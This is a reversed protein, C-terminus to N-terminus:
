KVGLRKYSPRTYMPRTYVPKAYAPKAYSYTPVLIAQQLDMPRMIGKFRLLLEPDISTSSVPSSQLMSYKAMFNYVTQKDEESNFRGYSARKYASVAQAYQEFEIAVLLKGLYKRIESENDETLSLILTKDSEKISYPVINSSYTSGTILNQKIQEPTYVLGYQNYLKQVANIALDRDVKSTFQLTKTEYKFGYISDRSEFGSKCPCKYFLLICLAGLALLLTAALFKILDKDDM